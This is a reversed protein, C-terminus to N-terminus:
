NKCFGFGHQAAIGQAAQNKMPQNNRFADAGCDVVIVVGFYM